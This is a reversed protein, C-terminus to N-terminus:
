TRDHDVLPCTTSGARRPPSPRVRACWPACCQTSTLMGFFDRMGPAVRSRVGALVEDWTDPGAVGGPETLWWAADALEM